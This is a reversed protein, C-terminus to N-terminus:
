NLRRHIIADISEDNALFIEDAKIARVSTMSAELMVGNDDLDDRSIM